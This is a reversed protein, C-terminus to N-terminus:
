ANEKGPIVDTYFTTERVGRARVILTARAASVPNDPTKCLYLEKGGDLAIVIDYAGHEGAARLTVREDGGCYRVVDAAYQYGNNRYGLDAPQSPIPAIRWASEIHLVYDLVRPTQARVTFADRVAGNQVQLARQYTVGEYVDECVAAIEHASFRLCRGPHTAPMSQGDAVVTNHALTTRHWANCMVSQYGANSLDRSFFQGGLVLEVNMIDPHAHSKGNLGYKLFLNVGGQRIIAFNSLAFNSSQRPEPAETWATVDPAYLLRELSYRNQWYYAQSLPLTVRPQEGSEIARFLGKIEGGLVRSAMAFVYSYTKLGIDPWGDNPTPFRGNDFANRYAATLMRQASAEGQLYPKGCARAFLLFTVVGELLFFHYHMTGEYWLGDPTVGERLQRALGFEGNLAADLAADDGLYLAIVGVACADWCSINHVAVIQPLLLATMSRLMVSCALLAPKARGCDQLLSMAQVIRVAIIAENLGQPMIRGCGWPMDAISSPLAHEKNHLAFRTYNEAYFSLIGLAIDLQREDGTARYCAAAKLATTVALNRYNCLWAGDYADGTYVRGCLSCVHERPKDLDFTLRAGDDDCFYRHGWRSFAEPSDSFRAYFADNERAMDALMGEYGQYPFLPSVIDM